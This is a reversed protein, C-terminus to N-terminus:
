DNNMVEMNYPTPLIWWCESPSTEGQYRTFWHPIYNWVDTYKIWTVYQQGIINQWCQYAVTQYKM